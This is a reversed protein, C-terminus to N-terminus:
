PRAVEIERATAAHGLPERRTRTALLWAAHPNTALYRAGLRRPELALRWLWELGARQLPMPARARRKSLFDFLGGSTKVAGVGRLADAYRLAFRQERPFGMALWLVDPRLRAIEAVREDAAAGEVYGHHTGVLRLDPYLRRVEREAAALSEPDAGLMYFTRGQAQARTAVDHFLDTTAVREPLPARCLLRSAFVLPMGDAHIEDFDLVLRRLEPDSAVLSLVQGNASTSLFPRANAAQRSAAQALLIDAAANRDVVRLPLGGVLSADARRPATVPPATERVVPPLAPHTPDFGTM